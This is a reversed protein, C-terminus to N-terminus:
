SWLPRLNGGHHSCSGSVGGSHSYTGDQCEEVYGNTSTWFSPICNFYGCFSGPPSYIYSGGCFNYGWPNSPAGCLNPPPPPPPPAPTPTHVVPVPTPTPTAPLPTRTPTPTPTPTATATPSPTPPATAVVAAVPPPQSKSNDSNNTQTSSTSSSAVPAAPAMAIASGLSGFSLLLAAGLALNVSATRRFRILQIAFVATGLAGLYFLVIWAHGATAGIVVGLLCIAYFATALVAKGWTASRFGPVAAYWGTAPPLSSASSPLPQYYTAPLQRQEGM